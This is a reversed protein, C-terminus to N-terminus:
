VIKRVWVHSSFRTAGLPAVVKFGQRKFMSLTGSTSENGFARTEWRSIPYAEVLGGGERKISNLAARLAATAIGQRRYKRDVVFCTIRWLSEARSGRVNAKLGWSKREEAELARYKRSNDVRPLEERMGYQCWGVAREDVYVLIGHALGGDVLEKKQKCNRVGREARTRLHQDKPLSRPRHFLMCFCHDWGGGHSFLDVFDDWTERSLEKTVFASKSSMDIPMM